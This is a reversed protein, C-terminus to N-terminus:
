RSFKVQYPLYAKAPQKAHEPHKIHVSKHEKHAKCRTKKQMRKLINKQTLKPKTIAQNGYVM